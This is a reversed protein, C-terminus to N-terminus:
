APTSESCECLPAAGEEASPDSMHETKTLKPPRVAMGTFARAARRRHLGQAVGRDYREGTDARARSVDAFEDIARCQPSRHM